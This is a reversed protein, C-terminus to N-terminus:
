DERAVELKQLHGHLEDLRVDDHARPGKRVRVGGCHGVEQVRRVHRSRNLRHQPPEGFHEDSRHLAVCVVSAASASLPTPPAGVM